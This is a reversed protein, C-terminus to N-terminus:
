SGASFSGSRSMSMPEPPLQRKRSWELQLDVNSVRVRRIPTRKRRCSSVSQRLRSPTQRSVLIGGLPKLNGMISSSWICSYANWMSLDSFASDPSPM